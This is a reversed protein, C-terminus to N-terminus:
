HFIIESAATQVELARNWTSVSHNDGGLIDQCKGTRAWERKFFIPRSSKDSLSFPYFIWLKPNAEVGIYAKM